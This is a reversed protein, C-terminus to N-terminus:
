GRANVPLHIIFVAGKGPTSEVRMTGGHNETIIFYSVSLGLGTGVGVGKTTFFPEFVRKRVAPTMGPGNDKIEIRVGNKERMTKLVFMPEIRKKEGGGMAQAGNKLINLFVQQIKSPECRIVGVDSDYERVIRIKKFDYKKKLDYDSAALALTKDLLDNVDCMEGVSDSKRSFSLMNAVILAARHGSAMVMDLMAPVQRKEMYAQIKDLTTECALAAARNKETNKMVRGQIVQTNQLIGALPNNIEHAMGAALGGVSLMKETQIMMEEMRVQESVDDMRIVAGEVGNTVLPYITIDSIRNEEDEVRRNLITRRITIANKIQDMHAGLRPFVDILHCGQANEPSIGTLREAELNWQTVRGEKDVGVLVSPMSNIINGLFNRLARIEKETTKLETIDRIITSLYQLEGSASRHSMVVQSTAIIRGSYHCLTNEGLWIGEEMAMPIAENRLLSIAAEDHADSIKKDSIDGELPWGLIERGARNMFLIKGDLTSTSVLDVTSELLMILRNREEEAAKTESIDRIAVVKLLKDPYQLVRGRIEALFPTGSKRVGTVEYPGFRDTEIMVQDMDVTHSILYRSFLPAGVYEQEACGFLHSFQDNAQIIVGNEHVVIAEWSANALQRFRKESEQLANDRKEVEGLMDNFSQTLWGIEDNSFIHARLGYDKNASVRTSIDTLHLVPDAIIRQLGSSIIFAIILVLIVTIGTAIIRQALSQYVSRLDSQIITKGVVEDHLKMEHSVILHGQFFRHGFTRVDGPQGKFGERRYAAFVEGSLNLIFVGEISSDFRFADLIHIADQSDDFILSALCNEGVMRSQVSLAEVLQNKSLIYDYFISSITLLIVSLTTSVMIISMLKNRITMDAFMKGPPKGASDNHPYVSDMM